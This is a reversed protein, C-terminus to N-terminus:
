GDCPFGLEFLFCSASVISLVPNLNTSSTTSSVVCSLFTWGQTGSVLIRNILTTKM